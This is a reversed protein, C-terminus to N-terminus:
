IRKQRQFDKEKELKWGEEKLEPISLSFIKMISDLVKNALLVVLFNQSAFFYSRM